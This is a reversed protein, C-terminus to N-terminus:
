KLAAENCKRTYEEKSVGILHSFELDAIFSCTSIMQALQNGEIKNKKEGIYINMFTCNSWIRLPQAKVLAYNLIPMQDDVGADKGVGNFQLLFGISNFLEVMNELKKRPSKETDMLNFYKLSDTLFSGYVFERKSQVFHKPETWSLRISQQFIKTDQAFPEEPFIKDYIKSMIYDYIKQIITDLGDKIKDKIKEKILELYKNINESFKLNQQLKFIDLDQYKQYYSLNPFKSIFQNITVCLKLNEKKRKKEYDKIKKEYDKMKKEYDKMKKEYDKEDKIKIEINDKDKDKDKEKSEKFEVLEKFEKLEKFNSTNIEFIGVEGEDEDDEEDNFSFILDVPIFDNEIISKSEDNLKVDILLRKSEEYYVKCVKAFKLKGIIVSLAEFDLDKISKNLDNEIEKYLKECDNETLDKPIKKLYELLSTAYWESPISGDKVFNSSKMFNKLEILIKETNETKGEDFDTKVLKNYNYLLSCFFNKVKIINNENTNKKEPTDKLEKISFSSTEQKIDFLLKYRDNYLVSTVLFYRIKKESEKENETKNDKKDKKKKEKKQSHQSSATDEYLEQKRLEVRLLNLLSEENIKSNLKELTKELGKTKPSTLIKDKLLNLTKIITRVQFLNYFISRHCLVEDPNEKFYDYEYDEPLENKILKEIFSPLRAKTIHIFIDFLNNMKEIFYWNFPTYLNEDNISKYFNGSALKNIIYGIVKLNNLTNQSIIFNNIFAEVGPNELFPVLLKGFFFKAVFAYKELESITPFKKEVLLLIIKCLCKVSYPLLHFNELINKIIQDIFNIIIMFYKQYYALIKDPNKNQFLNDMLRKNAYLIDDACCDNIKKNFFENLKQNDKNKNLQEKLAQKNLDPMYTQVFKINEEEDKKTMKLENESNNDSDQEDDKKDKNKKKKKDKEKDKDIVDSVKSPSFNINLSSHNTELNKISNFIISKFFSQIDKKFRLKELLYGCNSENLFNESDNIDNLNNIEGELLLTLLHMLRDDMSNSSLINEYFNDAFLTSLHNKVYTNKSNQIISCVIKPKEWLYNMLKPIYTNLDHLYDGANKVFEYKRKEKKTKEDILNM